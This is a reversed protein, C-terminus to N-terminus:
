AGDTSAPGSETTPSGTSSSSSTVSAAKGAIEGLIDQSVEQFTIFDLAMRSAGFFRANFTEFSKEDLIKEYMDLIVDAVSVNPNATAEAIRSQMNSFEFLIGAPIVEKLFFQDDDIWFDINTKRTQYRKGM